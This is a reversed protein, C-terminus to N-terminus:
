RWNTFTFTFIFYLIVTGLITLAISPTGLKVFVASVLLAEFLTPLLTFSFINFLSEVSSTGRDMVRTVEGTKRKLHFSLSLNQLHDFMHSSFRIICDASVLTYLFEQIGSLFNNFLRTFVFAVLILVPVNPPVSPSSPSAIADVALKFMYPPILNTVKRLFVCFISIAALFRLRWSQPVIFPHVVQFTTRWSLTQTNENESQGLLPTAEGAGGGQRGGHRRGGGMGHGRPMMKKLEVTKRNPVFSSPCCHQCHTNLLGECVTPRIRIYTRTKLATSRLKLAALKILPSQIFLVCFTM